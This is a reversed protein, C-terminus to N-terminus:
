LADSARRQRRSDASDRPRIRAQFLQLRACIEARLNELSVRQRALRQGTETVAVAIAGDVESLYICHREALM